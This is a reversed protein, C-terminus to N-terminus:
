QKYTAVQTIYVIGEDGDVRVEQGDKILNTANHVNVVAPIGYERAVVAGHSLMGGREMVLGSANLFLPTWGPDTSPCVLIYDRGISEAQNPDLIVRAKGTAIGISVPTGRLQDFAEERGKTPYPLPQGFEELEDSFIVKPLDIKLLQERRHKREAIMKKFAEYQSTDKKALLHPLEDPKLYFIGGDLQYRRDLEVLAKRILEYGLMLYFKANERFPMYRQTYELEKEIKKRLASFTSKSLSERLLEEAEIRRSKQDEFRGIPNMGAQANCRNARDVTDACAPASLDTNQKFSDVMKKVFSPDERWRPQALEFENVARHGYKSLFEELSIKGCAVEWMKLNTEVTLDGELGMVLSRVLVTDKSRNPTKESFKKEMASELQKYSFEAFVTAKLAEGAFDTLTKKVWSYFKDLIEQDTLQSLDVERESSVYDCFDPIIKETLLEDYYERMKKLKRDAAIMKYIFIPLKLWFQKTSKKINVTVQPYSAEEPHSKLYQFNHEFPFGNFYLKAERNLNFYIRGCILDLVGQEDVVSAPDFGLDRYTKGFGGKGSMFERVIEYTMPLPEPLIESLNFQSWITGDPAIQNKLKEIEQVLLREKTWEGKQWSAGKAKRSEPLTTIPRAQLIYLKGDAFAWEIDQPFNYFREIELGQQGLERIEEEKLSPINQKEDPVKLKVQHTFMTKKVSVTQEIIQLSEKDIVFRDPSIEGSVVAEGLGWNSEVVIKDSGTTPNVTFMVGSVDSEIMKQVVVAMSLEEEDIGRDRRYAIVRETWLSQWCNKVAEILSSKGEVNLFTDQQGAFSATPLDEATASSRVAVKGGGIKNYAIWIEEKISMPFDIEGGIKLSEAIEQYAKTTICFGPPVSSGTKKMLGLNLAKGGVLPLDDEDLETFYKIFEM